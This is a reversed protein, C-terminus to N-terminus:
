ASRRRRAPPRTRNCVRGAARVNKRARPIARRSNVRRAKMQRLMVRVAQPDLGLTESVIVFTFPSHRRNNEIWMQAEESLHKGGDLYCRIADELVALM